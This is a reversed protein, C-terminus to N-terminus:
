NKFFNLEYHNVAVNTYKTKKRGVEILVGMEVLENVRPTIQNIQYHKSYNLQILELIRKQCFPEKENEIVKLIKKQSQSIKPLTEKYADFLLKVINM